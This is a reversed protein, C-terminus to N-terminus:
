QEKGNQLSVSESGSLRQVSKILYCFTQILDFLVNSISLHCISTCSQTTIHSSTHTHTHKHYITVEVGNFDICFSPFNSQKLLLGEKIPMKQKFSLVGRLSFDMVNIARKEKFSKQHLSSSVEKFQSYWLISDLFWMNSVYRSITKQSHRPKRQDEEKRWTITTTEQQQPANNHNGIRKMKTRMFKFFHFCCIWYNLQLEFM